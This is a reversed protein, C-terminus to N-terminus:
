KASNARKVFYHKQNNFEVHASQEPSAPLYRYLGVRNKETAYFEDLWNTQSANKEWPNFYVVYYYISEGQEMVETEDGFGGSYAIGDKEYGSRANTLTARKINFGQKNLLYDDMMAYFDQYGLKKKSKIFTIPQTLRRKWITKQEMDSTTMTAMFTTTFSLTAVATALGAHKTLSDVKAVQEFKATEPTDGDTIYESPAGISLMWQKAQSHGKNEHSKTQLMSCASLMLVMPLVLISRYM